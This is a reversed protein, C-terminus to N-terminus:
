RAYTRWLVPLGGAREAAGIGQWVRPLIEHRMYSGRLCSPCKDEPKYLHFAASFRTIEDLDELLLCQACRNRYAELLDHALREYAKGFQRLMITSGTYLPLRIQLNEAAIGDLDGLDFTIPAAGQPLVTLTAADFQVRCEGARRIGGDAALYQFAGNFDAM